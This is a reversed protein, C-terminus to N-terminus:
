VNEATAAGFPAHPTNEGWKRAEGLKGWFYNSQKLILGLKVIGAHFDYHSVKEM